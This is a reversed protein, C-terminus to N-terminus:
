DEKFLLKEHAAGAERIRHELDDIRELLLKSEPIGSFFRELYPKTAELAFIAPAGLLGADVFSFEPRPCFVGTKSDHKLDNMILDVWTGHVAHSPIRQVALYLEEKNLVKLREKIGGGWDGYKQDVDEIKVASAQCVNNISKLMREEIPLVKGSRAAIEAQIVDYLEKEPGLSFKVFQDFFKDDTKNVLFELNVASEMISRNLASVVEARNGKASLQVVVLMFKYIRIMLGACIAQNRSWGGKAAADEDLLHAVVRVVVGTEKYLEFAVENVKEIDAESSIGEIQVRPCLTKELAQTTAETVKKLDRM